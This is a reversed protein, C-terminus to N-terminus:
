TKLKDKDAEFYGGLQYSFNRVTMRSCPAASRDNAWLELGADFM